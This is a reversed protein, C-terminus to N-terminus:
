KHEQIGDTSQPMEYKFAVLEERRQETQWQEPGYESLSKLSHAKWSNGILHLYVMQLLM